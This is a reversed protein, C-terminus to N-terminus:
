QSWGLVTFAPYHDTVVFVDRRQRTVHMTVTGTISGCFFDLQEAPKQAVRVRLPPGGTRSPVAGALGPFLFTGPSVWM